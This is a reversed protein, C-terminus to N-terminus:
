PYPSLLTTALLRDASDPRQTHNWTRGPMNGVRKPGRDGKSRQIRDSARAGHTLQLPWALPTEDEGSRLRLVGQARPGDKDRIDHNRRRRM